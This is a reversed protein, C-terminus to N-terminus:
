DELTKIVKAPVGAVVTNAAVDHTVIAGAGVVANEGITVGPLVTANAGIWANKGVHVSDLEVKHRDEPKLPHNVSILSANPRILAGDDIFIEGLDVFTVGENIFINKGLHINAGFDTHFPTRIENSEDVQEGTMKEFIQHIESAKVTQNMKLLLQQNRDIIPQKEKFEQSNNDIVKTM